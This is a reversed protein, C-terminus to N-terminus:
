GLTLLDETSLEAVTLEVRPNEKDYHKTIHLELIQKDDEYVIKELADFVLKNFNDIDAKRRNGMYLWMRVYLDKDTPGGKFQERIQKIYDHKLSM